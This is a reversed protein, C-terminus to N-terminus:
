AVEGELEDLDLARGAVRGLDRAPVRLPELLDPHLDLDEVLHEGRRRDHDTPQPAALGPRADHEVPVEVRHRDRM